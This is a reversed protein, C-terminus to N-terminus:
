KTSAAMPDEDNQSERISVREHVDLLALAIISSSYWNLAPTLLQFACPCCNLTSTRAKANAMVKRQPLWSKRSNEAPSPTVTVLDWYKSSAAGREESRRYSNSTCDRFYL